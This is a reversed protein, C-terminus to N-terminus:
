AARRWHERARAAGEGGLLMEAVPAGHAIVDDIVSCAEIPHCHFWEAVTRTERLLWHTAREVELARARSTFQWTRVVRIDLLGAGRRLHDLREEVTQATIGVKVGHDCDLVYLIAAAQEAM